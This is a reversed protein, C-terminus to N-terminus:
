ETGRIADCELIQRLNFSPLRPFVPCFYHDKAIFRNAKNFYIFQDSRPTSFTLNIVYNFTQLDLLQFVGNFLEKIQKQTSM